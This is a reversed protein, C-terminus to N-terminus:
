TIIINLSIEDRKMVFKLNGVFCVLFIWVDSILFILCTIHSISYAFIWNWWWYVYYIPWQAKGEEKVMVLQSICCISRKWSPVLYFSLSNSTNRWITSPNRFKTVINSLKIKREWRAHRLSDKSEKLIKVFHSNKLWSPSSYALFPM